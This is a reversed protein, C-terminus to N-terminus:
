ATYTFTEPLLGNQRKLRYFGVNGVSELSSASVASSNRFRREALQAVAAILPKNPGEVGSSYSGPRKM